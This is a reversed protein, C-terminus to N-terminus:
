DVLHRCGSTEQVHASGISREVNDTAILTAFLGARKPWNVKPQTLGPWCRM